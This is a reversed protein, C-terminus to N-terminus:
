RPDLARLLRTLAEAVGPTAAVGIDAEESVPGPTEATLAALAYASRRGDQEGWEHVAKFGTVDTLDDGLTLAVQYAGADLLRRIATGKSFPLPPRVEFAYHGTSIALGRARAPDVVKRLIEHRAVAADPALRYHIALVTRKDELVVGMRQLDPDRAAVAAIAQVDAVYAEALPETQVTRGDSMHELGHAGVYTAGDLPILRHGDESRRGTVFALMGVRDRLAALVEHFRPPVVADSPRSVVPSITGDIDCFLAAARPARAFAQECEELAHKGSIILHSAEM